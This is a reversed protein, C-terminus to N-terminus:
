KRRNYSIIGTSTFLLPVGGCQGFIQMFAIQTRGKNQKIAASSSM